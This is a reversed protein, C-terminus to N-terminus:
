DAHRSHKSAACYLYNFQVPSTPLLPAPGPLLVINEDLVTRLKLSSGNGNKNDQGM